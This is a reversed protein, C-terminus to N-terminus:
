LRYIFGKVNMCRHCDYEYFDFLILGTFYLSMLVTVVESMRRVVNRDGVSLVYKETNSKCYYSIEQYNGVQNKSVSLKTFIQSSYKAHLLKQSELFLSNVLSKLKEIKGSNDYIEPIRIQPGQKVVCAQLHFIQCSKQLSKPLNVLLFSVLVFCSWKFVKSWHAWSKSCKFDM